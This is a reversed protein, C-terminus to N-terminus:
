LYSIKCDGAQKTLLIAGCQFGGTTWDKPTETYLIERIYFGAEKVMRLRKKLSLIHCVTGYFVVNNAISLSKELFDAYKSFPPNTIIWDYDLGRWEFFDRGKSLECWDVEGNAYEKLNYYFSGEGMCPELISGSPNFHRVINQALSFPTMVLDKDPSNKPPCLNKKKPFKIGGLKPKDLESLPKFAMGGSEFLRIAEMAEPDILTENTEQDETM